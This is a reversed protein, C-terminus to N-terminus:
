LDGGTRYRLKITTELTDQVIFVFESKKRVGGEGPDSSIFLDDGLAFKIEYEGPMLDFQWSLEDKLGYEFGNFMLPVKLNNMSSAGEYGVIRVPTTKGSYTTDVVALRETWMSDTESVGGRVSKKLLLSQKRIPRERPFVYVTHLGAKLSATPKDNKFPIFDTSEDIKINCEFPAEFTVQFRPVDTKAFVWLFLVIIPLLIGLTIAYGTYPGRFAYYFCPPWDFWIRPKVEVELDTEFGQEALSLGLNLKKDPAQLKFQKVDKIERGFFRHKGRIENLKDEIQGILQESPSVAVTENISLTKRKGFYIKRQDDPDDAEIHMRLNVRSALYRVIIDDHEKIGPAAKHIPLKPNLRVGGHEILVNQFTAEPHLLGKEVAKPVIRALNEEITSDDEFTTFAKRDKGAADRYVIKYTGM